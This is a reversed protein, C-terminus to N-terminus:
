NSIISRVKKQKGSFLIYFIEQCMDSLDRNNYKVINIMTLMNEFWVESGEPVEESVFM